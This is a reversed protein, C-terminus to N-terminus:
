TEDISKAYTYAARAFLQRSFRRRLTIAGSNYISNSGDAIVNITGFGAYPRVSRLAQERGPQNIDYRRQLHTGKSGAFAVELVTGRAFEREVTVNYSQLYQTKPDSPGGYTSTVGGVSRRAAPFANSVTVATPTGTVASYSENISFPFTDSYEDM